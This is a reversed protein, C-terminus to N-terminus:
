NKGSPMLNIGIKEPNKELGRKALGIVNAFFVPHLRTEIIDRIKKIKFLNEVDIGEWPDPVKTAVGLNAEIYVPLEPLFSSGGCLLIKTIKQGSKEEYFSISKKIENMIEQLVGQLILMISGKEKNPDLGCNIKLEEAKVLPINLKRSIAQTFNDGAVSVTASFRIFGSEVITLVTIKGGIDVILAARNKSTKIEQGSPWLGSDTIEFEFARAM